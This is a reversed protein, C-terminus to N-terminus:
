AYTSRTIMGPKALHKLHNDLLNFLSETSLEAKHNLALESGLSDLATRSAAIGPELSALEAEDAVLPERQDLLLKVASMWTTMESPTAPSATVLVWTALWETSAQQFESVTQRRQEQVKLLKQRDDELAKQEANYQAVRDADRTADDALRDAEVIRAEYLEVVAARSRRSLKHRRRTDGAKTPAM